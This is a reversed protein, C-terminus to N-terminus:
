TRPRRIRKRVDGDQRPCKRAERLLEEAHRQPNKPTGWVGIQCCGKACWLMGWHGGEYLEFSAAKMKLIERLAKRVEKDTHDKPLLRKRAVAM